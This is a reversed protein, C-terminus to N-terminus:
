RKRTAETKAPDPGIAEIEDPAVSFGEPYDSNSRKYRLFYRIQTRLDTMRGNWAVVLVM